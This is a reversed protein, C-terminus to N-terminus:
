WIGTTMRVCEVRVREILYCWVRCLDDSYIWLLRKKDYERGQFMVWDCEVGPSVLCLCNGM